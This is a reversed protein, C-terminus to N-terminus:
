MFSALDFDMQIIKPKEREPAPATEGVRIQMKFQVDAEPLYHKVARRFIELDSISSGIGKCIAVCCEEFSGGRCVAKAFDESQKCFEMLAKATEGAVAKAYKDGGTLEKEADLKEIAREQVTTM